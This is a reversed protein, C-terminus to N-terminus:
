NFDTTCQLTSAGLLSTLTHPLPATLGPCLTGLSSRSVGWKGPVKPRDKTGQKGFLLYFITFALECCCHPLFHCSPPCFLGLLSHQPLGSYSFCM